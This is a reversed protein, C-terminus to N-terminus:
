SYGYTVQEHLVSCIFQELLPEWCKKLNNFCDAWCHVKVHAHIQKSVADISSFKVGKEFTMLDTEKLLCCEAASDDM